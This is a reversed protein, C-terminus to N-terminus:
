FNVGVNIGLCGTHTSGFYDHSINALGLDYLVEAYLVQYQIGCGFRLGGDFRKFYDDSYSSRAQRDAFNKIKGSVGYAIYGGLFPQVTLDNDLEYLYKVIIPMMLYNLDFTFKKGDVYGKGGKETYLLGSELYIPTSPSLQFGIIGGVNLGSQMNGGDLLADDTHITALSLGLRLGYYINHDVMFPNGGVRSYQTSYSGQAFLSLAMVLGAFSAFLRKIM